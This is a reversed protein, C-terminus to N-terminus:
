TIGSLTRVYIELDLLKGPSSMSNKGVSEGLFESIFFMLSLFIHICGLSYLVGNELCAFSRKDAEVLGILEKTDTSVLQQVGESQLIEKKLFQINEESVSQFLIAGKNITNAVEFALISIKNGRPAMGSGFGNSNSLKPM